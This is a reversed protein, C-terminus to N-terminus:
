TSRLHILLARGRKNTYIFNKRISVLNKPLQLAMKIRNETENNSVFLSLLMAQYVSHPSFFINEGSKSRKVVNKMFEISFQLRSRAMLASIKQPNDGSLKNNPFCKLFQESNDNQKSFQFLLFLLFVYSIRIMM